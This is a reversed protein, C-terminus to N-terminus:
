LSMGDALVDRDLADLYPLVGVLPGDIAASLYALNERYAVMQPEVAVAIWGACPLGSQRIAAWTLLAHNICGLRMGVVMVVPLALAVALDANNIAADLPSFWGGAGEVLVVDVRDQMQLCAQRLQQCDVQQDGCAVHPSVAREFPYPNIRAYDCKTSGYQQLLLADANKWGGDLWECGAAVPKMGAVTLGQRQWYRMLALTSWTKGVNTDTGTIFFGKSMNM